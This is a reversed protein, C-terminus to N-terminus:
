QQEELDMIKFFSNEPDLEKVYAEMEQQSNCCHGPFIQWVNDLKYMIEPQKMKNSSIKVVEKKTTKTTM